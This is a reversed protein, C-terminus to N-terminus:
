RRSVALGFRPTARAMAAAAILHDLAVEEPGVGVASHVPLKSGIDAAAM